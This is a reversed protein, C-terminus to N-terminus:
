RQAALKISLSHRENVALNRETKGRTIDLIIATLAAIRTPICAPNTM